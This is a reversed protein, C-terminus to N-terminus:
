KGTGVDNEKPSHCPLLLDVTLGPQNPRNYLRYRGGIGWVISAVLPLGLGMGEVQGTFYKEGQYYPIWIQALQEPSLTLGDDKVQILV